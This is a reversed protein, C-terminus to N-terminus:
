QTALWADLQKQKEDMIDQLGAAYLADNFEKIGTEPDVVGYAVDKYYQQWVSYCQAEQTEVNTPDFMLGFAKSKMTESNYKEYQAWIDTPNGEWAHGIFQNPYTWGFDNHYGVSSATVGDPYTALGDSAEVWDTGKIGWNILDEFDQSVYTWNLFQFAKKKDQAANAVSYVGGGINATTKVRDSCNIITVDYGTQAKKEINSNPKVNTMFCFTNGAKLLVEGTDSTTAIDQSSYGAEFWKRNIEAFQKYLDSEFWNTIKTTQGYDMLVGFNDGLNDMYSGQIGMTSNANFVIMDPYKEHVKAFLETIKDFSSMDDITVNFDSAKYGLETLIDTRCVLGAPYSREKMQGFGMLFKGGVMGCYADEGLISIADQCYDLYDNANVVYSSNIYTSYSSSLAPFLDLAENSALMMSLQSTYTGFTMPIMNVTMNLKEKALANVADNVKQQDTGEMAVLYLFNVQYPDGTMDIGELAHAETGVESGSSSSAATSATSETGSTSSKSSTSATSAATSSTSSSSSCAAFTSLILALVLIASLIRKKMINGEM